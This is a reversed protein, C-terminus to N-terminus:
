EGGAAEAVSIFRALESDSAVDAAGYNEALADPSLVIDRVVTQGNGAPGHLRGNVEFYLSGANGARLRAPVDTLPVDFREGADLIKELIVTGDPGRVRVWCPRVALLEVTPASPEIEPVPPVVAAVPPFYTMPDARALDSEADMGAITSRGYPAVVDLLDREVSEPALAGFKDPDIAAIPGDRAVIAPADVLEPRALGDIGGSVATALIGGQEGGDEALPFASNVPDLDVIVQPTQDAPALRVKQVEQLVIWGGYGIGALLMLLLFVSGLARPEFNSLPSERDVLYGFYRSAVPHRSRLAQGAPASLEDKRVSHKMNHRMQSSQGTAVSFGSEKCFTQFAWDPDVGLYSAYSRVYGAVFSPVDMVSPDSSEIASIYEAKIRLENQVDLLSKGKTAREGRLIDGLRTEFDDFGRLKSPGAADASVQMEAVM